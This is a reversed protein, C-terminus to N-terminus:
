RGQRFVVQLGQRWHENLGVRVLEVEPSLFRLVIESAPHFRLGPAVVYLLPPKKQLELGAFYGLSEFDGQLQHWRVRLWYDLAQVILQIDESVKLEIVVLRGDRTAGLLDLVARDSSSFAPLQPYVFRPDLRPEIRTADSAVLSELWREGQARYLPHNVDRPEPNRQAALQDFRKRWRPSDLNAPELRGESTVELLAGNRWRAFELGRFRFAVDGAGPVVVADIADAAERALARLRDTTEAASALLHESERRLSLHSAVNGLESAGVRRVRWREADVEYIEIGAEPTLGQVRHATVASKGVPLFLRLGEIVRHKASAQRAGQGAHERTWALWLLGFTLAADTAAADDEPSVGLVAAARQGRGMVGRPYRGSFSHELDPSATLSHVDEDPFEEALLQRFRELYKERSLRGRARPSKRLRLELRGPRARGFREIELQLHTGSQETVGLVRRVLNKESSWLHLMVRGGKETVESRPEALGVLPKGDEHIDVQGQELLDALARTLETPDIM